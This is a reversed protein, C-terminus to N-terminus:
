EMSITLNLLRHIHNVPHQRHLKPNIHPSLLNPPRITLRSSFKTPTFFSKVLLAITTKLRIYFLLNPSCRVTSYITGSVRAAEM